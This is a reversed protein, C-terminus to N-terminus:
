EICLDCGLQVLCALLGWPLLGIEEDLWFLTGLLLLFGPSVEVRPHDHCTWM